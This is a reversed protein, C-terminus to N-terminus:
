YCYTEVSTDRFGLLLADGMIDNQINCNDNLLSWHHATLPVLADLTDGFNQTAARLARKAQM